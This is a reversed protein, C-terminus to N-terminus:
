EKEKYYRKGITSKNFYTSSVKVPLYFTDQQWDKSMEEEQDLLPEKALSFDDAHSEAMDYWLSYDNENLDMIPPLLGRSLVMKNFLCKATRKNGQPLIQAMMFEGAIEICGELFEYDSANQYLDDYRKQMQKFFYPIEQPPLSYITQYPALNIRQRTQITKAELDNEKQSEKIAEKLDLPKKEELLSNLVGKILPIIQERKHRNNKWLTRKSQNTTLTSNLESEVQEIAPRIFGLCNKEVIYPIDLTSLIMRRVYADEKSFPPVSFLDAIDHEQLFAITKAAQEQVTIPNPIPEMYNPYLKKRRPFFAGIIEDINHPFAKDTSIQLDNVNKLVKEKDEWSYDTMLMKQYLHLLTHLEEKTPPTQTTKFYNQELLYRIHDKLDEAQAYVEYNERTIPHMPMGYTQRYLRTKHWSMIKRISYHYQSEFLKDYRGRKVDKLFNKLEIQTCGYIDKSHINWTSIERKIEQIFKEKETQM